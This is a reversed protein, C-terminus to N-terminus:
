ENSCVGVSVFTMEFLFVDHLFTIGENVERRKGGGDRLIGHVRSDSIPLHDVVLLKM